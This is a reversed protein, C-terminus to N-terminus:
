PSNKMYSIPLENIKQNLFDQVLEKMKKRGVYSCKEVNNAMNTVNKLQKMGGQGQDEEELEGFKEKYMKLEEKMSDNEKRLRKALDDLNVKENKQIQFPNLFYITIIVTNELRACRTSFRCTTLTEEFHEVNSSLNAIM